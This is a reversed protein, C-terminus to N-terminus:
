AYSLESNDGARSRRTIANWNEMARRITHRVELSQGTDVLWEYEMSLDVIYSEM